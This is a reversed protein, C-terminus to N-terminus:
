TNLDDYVRTVLKGDDYGRDGAFYECRTLIESKTEEMEMLMSHAVPQEAASAKTVAYAVPLEYNADVILHVKYGFWSKVKERVKGDKHRGKYVKKGWDADLDRRGDKKKGEVNNKGNAPGSIAKGDVAPMKGLDPLIETLKKVLTEFM